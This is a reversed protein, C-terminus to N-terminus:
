NLNYCNTSSLAIGACLSRWPENSVNYCNSRYERNSAALCTDKLQSSGISYCMTRFDPYANALCLNKIDENQISYCSSQYGQGSNALCLNKLDPDDINYCNSPYETMGLCANFHDPFTRRAANAAAAAAARIKEDKREQELWAQNDKVSNQFTSEGSELMTEFSSQAISSSPALLMIIGATVYHFCTGRMM